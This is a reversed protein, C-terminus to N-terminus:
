LVLMDSIAEHRRVSINTKSRTGADLGLGLRIPKSVPENHEAHGLLM